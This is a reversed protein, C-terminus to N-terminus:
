GNKNGAIIDGGARNGKQKIKTKTIQINFFFGSGFGFAFALIYGIIDGLTIGGM